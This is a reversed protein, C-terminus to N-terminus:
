VDEEDILGYRRVELDGLGAEGKNPQEQKQGGGAVQSGTKEAGRDNSDGRLLRVVTMPWLLSDRMRHQPGRRKQRRGMSFGRAAFTKVDFVVVAVFVGVIYVILVVNVFTGVVSALIM